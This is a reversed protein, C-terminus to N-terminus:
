VKVVTQVSPPFHILDTEHVAYKLSSVRVQTWDRWLIETWSVLIIRQKKIRRREQKLEWSCSGLLVAAQWLLSICHRTCDQRGHLTWILLSQRPTRADHQSKLEQLRNGSRRQQRQSFERYVKEGMSGQIGSSRGQSRMLGDKM